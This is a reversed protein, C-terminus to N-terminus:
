LLAPLLVLRPLRLCPLQLAVLLLLLLHVTLRCSTQLLIWSTSKHPRAHTCIPTDACILVHIAVHVRGHIDVHV